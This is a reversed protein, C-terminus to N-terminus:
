YEPLGALQRLAFAKEEDNGFCERVHDGMQSGYEEGCNGCKDTPAIKISKVFKKINRAGTFGKHEGLIHMICDFANGM